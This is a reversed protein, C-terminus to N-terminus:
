KPKPEALVAAEWWAGSSNSPWAPVDDIALEPITARLAAMSAVSAVLLTGAGPAPGRRGEGHADIPAQGLHFQLGM